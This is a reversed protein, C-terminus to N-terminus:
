VVVCMAFCRWRLWVVASVRLNNVLKEAMFWSLRYWTMPVVDVGGDGNDDDHDAVGDHGSPAAVSATAGRHAATASHM